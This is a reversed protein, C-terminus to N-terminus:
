PERRRHAACRVRERSGMAKARPDHVLVVLPHDGVKHAAACEGLRVDMVLLRVLAHELGERGLQGRQVRDRQRRLLWRNEPMEHFLHQQLDFLSFCRQRLADRGLLHASLNRAHTPPEVLQLHWNDIAVAVELRGVHHLALNAAAEDGVDGGVGVVDGEYIELEGARVVASVVEVFEEAGRGPLERPAVHAAEQVLVQLRKAVPPRAAEVKEARPRQEHGLEVLDLRLREGKLRQRPKLRRDEEEECHSRVWGLRVLPLREGEVPPSAIEVRGLDHLWVAGRRGREEGRAGRFLGLGRLLASAALLVKIGDGGDLGAGSSLLLRDRVCPQRIIGRSNRWRRIRSKSM